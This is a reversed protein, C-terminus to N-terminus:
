LKNMLHLLTAEMKEVRIRLDQCCCEEREKCQNKNARPNCQKALGESILKNQVLLAGTETMKEVAVSHIGTQLSLTTITLECGLLLSQLLRTTSPMWKEDVHEVGALCCKIIQVPPDLFSEKIAVLCSYPLSETNGYDAYAVQAESESTDLVIARYWQSDGTFRACCADGVTPRFNQSDSQASCYTAMEIMTQQLKGVDVRNEKPFAYFLDPSIVCLVLAQVADQLPLEISTWRRSVSSEKMEAGLPPEIAKDLSDERSPSRVCVEKEKTPTSNAQLSEINDQFKPAHAKTSQPSKDGSGDMLINEARSTIKQKTPHGDGAEGVEQATDRVAVKEAVLAESVSSGSDSAVLEVRYGSDIKSVAKAKLKVGAVSTRFAIISDRDWKDRVPKVGALSCRVAQFPLELFKPPIDCLKDAQLEETNGYDMFRVKITKQEVDIVMARYWNGDGSFFACFIDGARPNCKTSLSMLCHQGLSRNVEELSKTDKENCLQCYFEDPSYFMCVSVDVNCGIPLEVPTWQRRKTCSDDMLEGGSCAVACSSGEDVALGAQILKRAIDLEPNVSGDLLQVMLHEETETAVRVAIMKNAVLSAMETAAEKTWKKSTPRVGALSCQIAQLPLALMRAPIPRLRSVPLLELNGFDVYGVLASDESVRDLVTARYWRNDETFLAACIEGATPSFGPSVPAAKYHKEMSEMLEALQEGNKLQQCYFRSPTQIDTIVANFVDGVSVSVAKLTPPLDTSSQEPEAAKDLISDTESSSRKMKSKVEPSFCYGKDFLYKGVREGSSPLTVDVGYIPPEEQEIRLVTFTVKKGLLLKKVDVLCEPTWGCPPAAINALFCKIATPPILEVDKHMQQVDNMSVTELNGFDLYFVQAMKMQDDVSHVMVRYWNQDQAYKAVCIEGIAPTYGKKLNEPKTYIEKLLTSVKVLSEVSKTTCVQIYFKSPSLFDLVFGQSEKGEKLGSEQLDSFTIKRLIEETKPSTSVPSAETRRQVIQEGRETPSRCAGQEKAALPKCFVSHASWDKRQCDASCYYAQRCQSCRRSGYLGCHNCSTPRAIPKISNFLTPEYGISLISESSSQSRRPKLLPEKVDM